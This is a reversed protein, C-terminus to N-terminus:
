APPQIPSDHIRKERYLELIILLYAIILPGLVVGIVGFMLLGAVMGILILSSNMNTRKSIFVPKVFNEIITSILGFFLIGLAPFAKGVILLYIVVPIWIITTGVIPFIGALMTLLALLLANPLKFIFFGAGVIIGQVLGMIVQGYLVSSTIDKSSKFLKREVDKPFPMLSEIYKIISDQDRLSFFLIFLVVFSQLLLRPFNLILESFSNMLSNTAKTLFSHVVLVFQTSLAESSFINPFITKLPTILDLNQSATYVKISQSLASPLLFWIPLFILIILILCVLFSSLNKSKIPKHILKYLPYFIFALIFGLIISLLFPKLLFFTLVLLVILIMVISLKKLYSEDMKFISSSEFKYLKTSM